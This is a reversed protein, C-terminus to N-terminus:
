IASRGCRVAAGQRKGLAEEGDGAHEVMYGADRLADIVAAALAAEDEVVLM